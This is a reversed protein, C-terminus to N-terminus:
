GDVAPGTKGDNNQVDPKYDSPTSAPCRAKMFIFIIRKARPIFHPAKPLLPNAALRQQGLLGALALHAFGAGASKLISRRSLIPRPSM